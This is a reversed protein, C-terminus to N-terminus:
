AHLLRRRDLLAHLVHQHVRRPSLADGRGSGAIGDPLGKMRPIPSVALRCRACVVTGTRACRPAIGDEDSSHAYLSTAAHSCHGGVLPHPPIPLRARNLDTHGYPRPPELGRMRMAADPPEWQRSGAWYTSAAADPHRVFEGERSSASVARTQEATLDGRSMEGRHATENPLPERRLTVENVGTALREQVFGVSLAVRSSVLRIKSRPCSALNEPGRKRTQTTVRASRVITRLRGGISRPARKPRRAADSSGLRQRGAKRPRM